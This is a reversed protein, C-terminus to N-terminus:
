TAGCNSIPLWLSFCAGEGDVESVEIRGGHNEIIRRCISLGMGLGSPKTTFFPNFIFPLRESPIGHGHDRIRLVMYAGDVSAKIEIVRNVPSVNKMAHVANILLNMLIQQLEVRCGEVKPPDPLLRFCLEINEGLVEAHVLDVVERVLENICCPEQIAQDKSVMARLNHIIGGARKDDRVIDDFIALLEEPSIMNATIFRRAAQANSLIAALPQNLEHALTAAIEGLTAVRTAHALETRLQEERREARLRGIVSGIIQAVLKVEIIEDERWMREQDQAVLVFAGSVKGNVIFPIALI